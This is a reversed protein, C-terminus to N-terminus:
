GVLLCLHALHLCGRPHRILEYHISRFGCPNCYCPSNSITSYRMQILIRGFPRIKKTAPSPNSGLVEPNHAFIRFRHWKHPPDQLYALGAFAPEQKGPVCRYSISIRITVRKGPNTLTM